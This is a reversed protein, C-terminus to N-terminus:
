DLNLAPYTKKTVTNQNNYKTYKIKMVHKWTFVRSKGVYFRFYFFLPFVTAGKM